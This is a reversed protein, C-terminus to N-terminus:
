ALDVALAYRATRGKGDVHKLTGNLRSIHEYATTRSVALREELADRLQAKTFPNPGFVEAAVREANDVMQETTEVTSVAEVVCSGFLSKRRLWMTAGGPGEKVKKRELEVLDSQANGRLLLVEDVNAELQSGGRAREVDGWGPHHVLVTTGNIAGALDSLRRTITAADKTEDADPALSSFTDLVVFGAGLDRAEATMELWVERSRLSDPRVSFVLDDDSVDTQWAQEWASVRNDLGYAGEGVVYLVPCRQVPRGLWEHGTAVSCAWSLAVFTKGAGTPGVLLAGTPRSLTGEILSQVPPLGRLQSRRMLTTSFRDRPRASEPGAASKARAAAIREPDGSEGAQVLHLGDVIATRHQALEAIRDAYWTANVVTPVSAILTHLYDVGGARQLDGVELTAAVAVPGVDDGGAANATIALFIAQHRPEYLDSASIRKQVDDIIAPGLMMAGLVIQEAATNHPPPRDSM